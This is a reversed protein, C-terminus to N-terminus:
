LMKSFFVLAMEREFSMILFFWVVLLFFRRLIPSIRQHTGKYM